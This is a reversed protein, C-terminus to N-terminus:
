PTSPEPLGCGVFNQFALNAIAEEYAHHRDRGVNAVSKRVDLYYRIYDCLGLGARRDGGYEDSHVWMNRLNYRISVLSATFHDGKGPLSLDDDHTHDHWDCLTKSVNRVWTEGENPVGLLPHHDNSDFKGDCRMGKGHVVRTIFGAFGEKFAIQEPQQRNGNWSAGIGNWGYDDGDWARLHLVHGYEHSILPGKVWTNKGKIVVHDPGLTTASATRNSPFVYRVEGYQSHKFPLEHERHLKQMTDVLSAFYNAAIGYDEAIKQSHGQPAFVMPGLDYSSNRRVTLPSEYSASPHYLAYEHNKDPGISYCVDNADCYRLRVRLALAPRNWEDHACEDGHPVYISFRGDPEVTVSGLKERRDCRASILRRSDREFVDVVAHLAGHLNRECPTGDNRVGDRGCLRGPQGWFDKRSEFHGSDRRDNFFVSGSLHVWPRQPPPGASEQSPLADNDDRPTPDGVGDEHILGGSIEPPPVDNWEADASPEDNPEDHPMMEHGHDHDIGDASSPRDPYRDAAAHEPHDMSEKGSGDSSDASIHATHMDSDTQIIDDLSRREQASGSPELFGGPPREPTDTPPEGCGMM